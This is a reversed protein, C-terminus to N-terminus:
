QFYSQPQVDTFLAAVLVTAIFLCAAAVGLLLLGWPLYSRWTRGEFRPWIRALFRKDLLIFAAGTVGVALFGVYELLRFWLPFQGDYETPYLAALVGGCVFLLAFGFVLVNWVLGIKEGLNWKSNAEPDEPAFPRGASLRRWRLIGREGLGGLVPVEGAPAAVPSVAPGAIPSTAPVPSAAPEFSVVSEPEPSAAFSSGSSGGLVEDRAKEFAGKLEFVSEFRAAPDFATAKRVVRAFSLAVGTRLAAEGACAASPTEGTLMFLLVMGLAYVDSRVDTQGYGFQEPPAYACTGFKLTDSAAEDRYTRAIGFDVITLGGSSVLVNDPKLDRHILPPDFSSHLECVADCLLSFVRCAWTLYGPNELGEKRARESVAQSLSVGPAKEMVVVLEEGFQECSLVRPLFRFRQGEGQAAHLLWYASGLGSSADIIKRVFPGFKFGNRDVLSVLETRECASEKLVSELEYSNSRAAAELFSSLEENM